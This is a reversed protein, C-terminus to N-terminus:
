KKPNPAPAAPRDAGEEENANLGTVKLRQRVAPLAFTAEDDGEDGLTRAALGGFANAAQRRFSEITLPDFHVIQAIALARSKMLPFAFTRQPSNVSSFEVTPDLTDLRRSVEDVFKPDNLRPEASSASRSDVRVREVTKALYGKGAASTLVDGPGSEFMVTTWAESDALLRQFLDYAKRDTVVQARVEAISDPASEHRVDTVVFYYLNGVADELADALPVGVQLGIGPEGKGLEKVQLALDAFAIRNTGRRLSAGGIGLIKTLEDRTLWAEGGNVSPAPITTGTIESLKAGALAALRVLDPRRDWAEPIVRYGGAEPLRTVEKLIEGKILQAAERIARAVIERRLNLEVTSRRQAETQGPAAPANLLRKQVEVPDLPVFPEMTNKILGFWQVRVRDPMRYGIGYDGGGVPTDKFKQFLDNVDTESPEPLSALKAPDPEIVVATLTASRGLRAADTIMRQQSLRPATLYLQRMRTIGRIEALAAAITVGRIGSQGREIFAQAMLQSKIRALLEKVKEETDYRDAPLQRSNIAQFLQNQALEDFTFEADADPGILGARRAEASLLFYHEGRPDIGLREPSLGVLELSKARQYAGASEAQTVKRGDIDFVRRSMGDGGINRIVEPILFSVMLLVGFAVLAIQTFRKSKRLSRFM